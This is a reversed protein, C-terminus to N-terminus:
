LLLVILMLSVPFGFHKTDKQHFDLCTNPMVKVINRTGAMIKTTEKETPSWTHNRKGVKVDNQVDHEDSYLFYATIKNSDTLSSVHQLSPSQRRTQM